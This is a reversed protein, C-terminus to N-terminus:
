PQDEWLGADHQKLARQVLRNRYEDSVGTYIPSKATDLPNSLTLDHLRVAATQIDRRCDSGPGPATGM